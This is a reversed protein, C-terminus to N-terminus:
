DIIEKYVRGDVNGGSLVLGIRGGKMEDPLAYLAAALAVCGGPEVVLKLHKFAFRMADRVQDDTVAFGGSVRSKSVASTIDGPQPTMIADCITTADPDITCVEGAEFSKRHDDFGAPEATWLKTQPSLAEFALAAGAM